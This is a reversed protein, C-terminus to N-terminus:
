DLGNLADTEERQQDNSLFYDNLDENVAMMDGQRHHVWARYLCDTARRQWYERTIQSDFNPITTALPIQYVRNTLRARRAKQGSGSPRVDPATHKITPSKNM